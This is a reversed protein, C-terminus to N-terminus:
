SPISVAVSSFRTDNIQGLQVFVFRQGRQPATINSSMSMLDDPKVNLHWSSGNAANALFFTGDEWPGVTWFMSADSLTYNRMVAVTNGPTDADPSVAVNMYGIPGSGKTRMVYYSSNYPFMQWQQENKTTNTNQFFVAGKGTNFFELNTLIESVSLPLYHVPFSPSDRGYSLSLSAFIGSEKAHSYSVM